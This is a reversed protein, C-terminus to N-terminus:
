LITRTESASLDTRDMLSRYVMCVPPQERVRTHTGCEAVLPRFPMGENVTVSSSSLHGTPLALKSAATISCPWCQAVCPRRGTSRRTKRCKKYTETTLTVAAGSYVQWHSVMLARTGAFFFARALGSFAENDDASGAATNCSSLVVWDANLRLAAIDSATLLGDDGASGPAGPTLALAPEALGPLEGSVLGHTAFHVIAFEGLRGTGSLEMVAKKTARAGLLVDDDAVGLDKAIACLEDATEPLPVLERLDATAAEAGRASVPQLAAMEQRLPAIKGPCAQKARALAALEQSQHPPGDLLPNGVGIFPRTARDKPVTARLAALSGISPLVTIAHRRILWAAKSYREGGSLAADPEETVLVQFPLTALAGTPVVILRKGEILPGFNGILAEYLAHSRKLDFLLEENNQFDVDTYNIQLLAQCREARADLWSSGDLGCRLAQVDGAITKSGLALPMWATRQKTIFFAHIHVQDDVFYVLAEDDAILQQVESITLVRAGSLEGYGQASQQLQAEIGKLEHDIETQRRREATVVDHDIRAEPQGVQAILRTEALNWQEALDQQRRVADALTPDGSAYRNAMRVIAAAAAPTALRQAVDFAGGGLKAFQSTDTWPWEGDIQLATEYIVQSLTVDPIDRGAEIRGQSAGRRTDAETIIEVARSILEHAHEWDKRGVLLRAGGLFLQAIRPDDDGYAARDIRMAEKLAPAAEGLRGQTVYMGALNSLRIALRHSDPGFM